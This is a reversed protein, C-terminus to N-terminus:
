TSPYILYLYLYIKIYTMMTYRVIINQLTCLHLIIPYHTHTHTHTHTCTKNEGVCTYTHVSSTFLTLFLPPLYAAMCLLRATEGRSIRSLTPRGFTHLARPIGGGDYFYIARQSCTPKLPEDGSGGSIQWSSTHDAPNQWNTREPASTRQICIM